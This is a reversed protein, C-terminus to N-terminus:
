VWITAWLAVGDAMWGRRARQSVEQKQRRGEESNRLCPCCAEHVVTGEAPASKERIAMHSVKEGGESIQGSTVQKNLSKRGDQKFSCGMTWSEWFGM